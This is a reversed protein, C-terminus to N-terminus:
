SVINSIDPFAGIITQGCGAGMMVDGIISLWLASISFVLMVIIMYITIYDMCEMLVSYRALEHGITLDDGHHFFALFLHGKFKRGRFPLLLLVATWLTCQSWFQIVNITILM